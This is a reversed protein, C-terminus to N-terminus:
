LIGFPYDCISLGSFSAVYHVCFSSFCVFVIVCYTNSVVLRVCVCFFTFLVHARRCVVPPLSSGFMIKLYSKVITEDLVDGTIIM